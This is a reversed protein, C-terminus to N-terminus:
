RAPTPRSSGTSSISAAVEFSVDRVADVGGFAKSLSDVKLVPANM